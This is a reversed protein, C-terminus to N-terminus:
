RLSLGETPRITYLGEYSSSRRQRVHFPELGADYCCFYIARRRARFISSANEFGDVIDLFTASSLFEKTDM